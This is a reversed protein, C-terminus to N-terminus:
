WDGHWGFSGSVVVGEGADGQRRGLHRIRAGVAFAARATTGVASSRAVVCPALAAVVVAIGMGADINDVHEAFAHVAGEIGDPHILWQCSLSLRSYRTM